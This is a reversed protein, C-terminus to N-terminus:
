GDPIESGSTALRLREAIVRAVANIVSLGLRPDGDMLEMLDDRFLGLLTSPETAIITASRPSNNLLAIEGFFDSPHMVAIERYTADEFERCVRLAGSHVIYMGVGPDGQRFVLEETDFGRVHLIGSIKELQRKSLNEFLPVSSLFSLPVGSSSGRHFPNGWLARLNM